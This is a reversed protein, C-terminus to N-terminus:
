PEFWAVAVTKCAGAAPSSAPTIKNGCGALSGASALADAIRDRRGRTM